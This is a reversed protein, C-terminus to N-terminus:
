AVRERRMLRAYLLSFILGITMLLVAVAAGRGFQFESFV